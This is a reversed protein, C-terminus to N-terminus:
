TLGGAVRKLSGVVGGDSGVPCARQCEIQSQAVSKTPDENDSIDLVGNKTGIKKVVKTRSQCVVECVQLDEADGCTSHRITWSQRAEIQLIWVGDHESLERFKKTWVCSNSWMNSRPIMGGDELQQNDGSWM